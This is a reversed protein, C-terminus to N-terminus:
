CHGFSIHMYMVYTQYHCLELLSKPSLKWNVLQMKPEPDVHWIVGCTESKFGPGNYSVYSCILTTSSCWMVAFCFPFDWIFIHSSLPSVKIVVNWLIIRAGSIHSLNNEIIINIFKPFVQKNWWPNQVTYKQSFSFNQNVQWMTFLPFM